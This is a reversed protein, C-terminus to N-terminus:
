KGIWRRVRAAEVHLHQEDCISALAVLEDIQPQCLGVEIALALKAVAEALRVRESRADTSQDSNSTTMTM